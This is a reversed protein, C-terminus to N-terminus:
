CFLACDPPSHQSGAALLWWCLGGLTRQECSPMHPPTHATRPYVTMIIFGEGRPQLDSRAVHQVHTIHLALDLDPVAHGGLSDGMTMGQKADGQTPSLPDLPQEEQQHQPKQQMHYGPTCPAALLGQAKEAM